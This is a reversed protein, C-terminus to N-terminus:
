YRTPPSPIEANFTVVHEHGDSVTSRLEVKRGERIDRVADAPVSVNHPHSAQGRIDLTLGGGATLQAGTILAQHLHNASIDGLEDTASGQAPTM